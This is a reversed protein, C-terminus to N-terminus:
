MSFYCMASILSIIVLIILANELINKVAAKRRKNQNKEKKRLNKWYKNRMWYGSGARNRQVNRANTKTHHNASVKFSKRGM